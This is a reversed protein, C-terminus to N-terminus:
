VKNHFVLEKDDYIENVNLGLKDQNPSIPNSLIESWANNKLFSAGSYKVM